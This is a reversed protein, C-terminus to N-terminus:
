AGGIWAIHLGSIGVKIFLVGWLGYYALPTKARWLIYVCAVTLAFGAFTAM